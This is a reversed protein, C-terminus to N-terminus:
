QFRWVPVFSRLSYHFASVPLFGGKMRHIPKQFSDKGPGLFVPAANVLSPAPMVPQAIGNLKTREPIRAPRKPGTFIRRSIQQLKDGLLEAHLCRFDGFVGPMRLDSGVVRL